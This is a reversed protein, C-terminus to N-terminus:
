RINKLSVDTATCILNSHRYGPARYTIFPATASFPAQFLASFSRQLLSYFTTLATLDLSIAEYESYEDASVKLQILVAPVM